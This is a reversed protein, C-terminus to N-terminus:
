SPARTGPARSSLRNELAGDEDLHESPELVIDLGEVADYLATAVGKRRWIRRSGSSRSADFARRAHAGGRWGGARRRDRDGFVWGGDLDRQVSAALGMPLDILPTLLIDTM